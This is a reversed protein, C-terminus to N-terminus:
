RDGGGIVAFPDAFVTYALWTPDGPTRIANRADRVAEGVPTGARLGDYVARAFDYAPEDIVSWYAGIFAGAGARVFHSAWGGVGTLSMGSRGVQCANFFVLPHPVGVNAGAGSIADPRLADGGALLITSKDADADRAGGHGTFHWGDYVGAAFAAHVAASTAPVQTVNRGGGKLSLVYDREAGALPLASDGPVVLALNTLHLPRKFGVGRMWRTIAYAECLFPGEVIRDGDRGSLKCLEWPIWPEDSQVVISGIRDRVEWLKERLGEPMVSEALATGKQALSQEAADRQAATELPLEDIEKFFEAFFAAADLKLEFPGFSDYNIGLTTDPATLFVQYSRSEETGTELVVMTLDPVQPSPTSLPASVRPAAAPAVAAEPATAPAVVSELVIEGLPEGKHFALVRVTGTGETTAKLKFQFPLSTGSGPVTLTGRDVDELTFGADPQVLIDITEGEPVDLGLGHSTAAQQTIYVLLWAVSGLRVHEPFEAELSRVPDAAAGAVAAGPAPADDAALAELVGGRRVPAGGAEEPPEAMAGVDPPEARAGVDPPEARAGDDPPEARAGIWGPDIAPVNAMDLAADAKALRGTGAAGFVHPPEFATPPELAAPPPATIGPAPPEARAASRDTFGRVRGREIVIAAGPGFSAPLDGDVIPTVSRDRLGLADGVTTDGPAAALLALAEVIPVLYWRDPAGGDVIVHTVGVAVDTLVRRALDVASPAQLLVFDTSAVERLKRDRDSM